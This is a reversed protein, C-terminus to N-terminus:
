SEGRANLVGSAIEKSRGGSSHWPVLEVSFRDEDNEEDHWVNVRVAGRWGAAHTTMGSLKSGCRTGLGRNGKLMGYFHSM